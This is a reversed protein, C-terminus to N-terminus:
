PKVRSGLQHDRNFGSEDFPEKNIHLRLHFVQIGEQKAFNSMNPRYDEMGLYIISKLKLNRLFSFNRENPHGSRYVGGAAVLDFNLPPVVPLASHPDKSPENAKLHDGQEAALNPKDEVARLASDQGDSSAQVKCQVFPNSDLWTRVRVQGQQDEAAALM